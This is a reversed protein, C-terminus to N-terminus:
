SKLFIFYLKIKYKFFFPVFLFLSNNSSLSIYSLHRFINTQFTDILAEISRRRRQPGSVKVKGVKLIQDVM